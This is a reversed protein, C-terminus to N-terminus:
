NHEVVSKFFPLYETWNSIPGRHAFLVRGKQDLVYSSPFVRAIMRDQLKKGTVTQLIDDNEGSPGSDYLPLKNFQYQKAWKLSEEFPERVQLLIMNVKNGYNKKLAKQLDLLEPMERICPPCWSGWFHVITVKGRFDSLSYKKGKVNKFILNPFHSARTVGLPSSTAKEEKSLHWLTSWGKKDFVVKDNLAYIVCTQQTQSQCNELAIREAQKDNIELESWAWAGGPAIAYAKPATAYIYQQFSEKAEQSVHPILKAHEGQLAYSPAAIVYFIFIFFAYFFGTNGIRAVGLKCSSTGGQM